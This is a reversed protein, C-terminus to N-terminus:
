ATQPGLLARLATSLSNVRHVTTPLAKGDWGPGAAIVRVEDPLDTLIKSDAYDPLLSFMVLHALTGSTVPDHGVRSASLAAAILTASRPTRAGLVTAPFGRDALAAALATVPLEHQEEPVCALLIPGVDPRTALPSPTRFANLAATIMHSLLHEVAITHPEGTWGESVAVLVPRLLADWTVVVGHTDLERSILRRVAPGDLDLAAGALRRTAPSVAAPLRLGRISDAAGPPTTPATAALVSRAAEGPPVESQILFRTMRLRQLDAKGYRRHGGPSTRSAGLGYRRQWIRLTDVTVGVRRAAVSISVGADEEYRGSVDIDDDPRHTDESPTDRAIGRYDRM